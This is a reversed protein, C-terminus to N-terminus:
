CIDRDFAVLPDVSKLITSWTFSRVASQVSDCNTPNKLFVTSRVNYEPVSQEVRLLLQCLLSHDSTGLPIGIVVDVIDPVDTMVLDLRNGAIHTSCCM